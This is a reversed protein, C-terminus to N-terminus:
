RKRVANYGGMVMGSLFVEGCFFYPNANLVPEFMCYLTMGIFVAILAYKEVCKEKKWIQVLRICVIVTFIVMLVFPIVGGTRGIDIWTNHAYGEVRGEYPELLIDSSGLPHQMMLKLGEQWLKFRINNLIGGDEGWDRLTVLGYVRGKDLLLILFAILSMSITKISKKISIKYKNEFVYLVVVMVFSVVMACTSMRGLGYLSIGVAMVSLLLGVISLKNEKLYIVWFVLSVAMMILFYEHQTRPLIMETGWMPFTGAPSNFYISSNIYIWSYSLVGKIYSTVCVIGIAIPIIRRNDMFIERSIKKGVLYELWVTGATICANAMDKDQNYFFFGVGLFLFLDTVDLKIAGFMDILCMVVAVDLLFHIAGHYVFSANFAWVLALLVIVYKRKEEALRGSVNM